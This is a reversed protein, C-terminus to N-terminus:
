IFKFLIGTRFLINWLPAHEKIKNNALVGRWHLGFRTTFSTTVCSPQNCPLAFTGKPDGFSDSKDDPLNRRLALVYLDSALFASGQLILQILHQESKKELNHTKSVADVPNSPKDVTWSEHQDGYYNKHNNQFASPDEPM